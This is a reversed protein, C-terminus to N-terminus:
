MSDNICDIIGNQRQKKIAKEGPKAPTKKQKKLNSKIEEESDGQKVETARLMDTNKNDLKKKIPVYDNKSYSDSYSMGYTKKNNINKNNKNNGSCSM